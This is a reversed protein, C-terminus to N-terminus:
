QFLCVFFFWYMFFCGTRCYGDAHVAQLYNKWTCVGAMLECCIIRALNLSMYDKNIVGIQVIGYQDRCQTDYWSNTNGIQFQEAKM